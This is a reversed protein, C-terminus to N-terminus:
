SENAILSRRSSAAIAVDELVQAFLSRDIPDSVREVRCFTKGSKGMKSSSRLTVDYDNLVNIDQTPDGNLLLM